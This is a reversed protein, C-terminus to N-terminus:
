QWGDALVCGARQGQRGIAAPNASDCRGRLSSRRGEKLPHPHRAAMRSRAPLGAASPHDHQREPSRPRDRAVNPASAAPRRPRALLPPSEWAPESGTWADLDPTPLRGGGLTYLAAAALFATMGRLLETLAFVRQIQDSRLSFGALFLAPSVAAGVGLGILASGAAARGSAGTALATLLAAASTLMGLGSMALVPTLRTRFLTATVVAAGFEPLFLLAVHVPSGNRLTRVTLWHQRGQRASKRRM